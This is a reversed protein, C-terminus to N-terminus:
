TLPEFFIKVIDEVINRCIALFEFLPGWVRLGETLRRWAHEGHYRNVDAQIRAYADLVM